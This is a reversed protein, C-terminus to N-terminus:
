FDWMEGISPVAFSYRVLAIVINARLYKANVFQFNTMVAIKKVKM